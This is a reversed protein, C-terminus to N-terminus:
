STHNLEKRLQDRDSRCGLLEMGIGPIYVGRQPTYILEAYLFMQRSGSNAGPQNYYDEVPNVAYEEELPLNNPDWRNVLVHDRFGLVVKHGNPATLTSGDDTWGQPIMNGGVWIPFIQIASFLDMNKQYVAPNGASNAADRVEYGNDNSLGSAIICHNLGATNWPYPSAGNLYLFRSEPGQIM